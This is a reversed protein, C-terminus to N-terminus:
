FFINTFYVIIKNKKWQSDINDEYWLIKKPKTGYWLAFFSSILLCVFSIAAKSSVFVGLISEDGVSWNFRIDCKLVYNGNLYEFFYEQEM